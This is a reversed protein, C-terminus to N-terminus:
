PSQTVDESETHVYSVQFIKFSLNRVSIHHTYSFPLAYQQTEKPNIKTMIITTLIILLECKM